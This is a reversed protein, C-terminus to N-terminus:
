GGATSKDIYLEKISIPIQNLPSFTFVDLESMLVAMALCSDQAIFNLGPTALQALQHENADAGIAVTALRVLPQKNRWQFFQKAASALFCGDTLFLVKIVKGKQLKTELYQSFEFLNASASPVPLEVKGKIVPLPQLHESLALIAVEALSKQLDLHQQVYVLLNKLVGQKGLEAMSGSCDVVVLLENCFPMMKVTM